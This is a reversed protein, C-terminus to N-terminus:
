TECTGAATVPNRAWLTRAWLEHWLRPVDVVDAADYVGITCLLPVTAFICVGRADKDETTHRRGRASALLAVWATRYWKDGEATAGEGVGRTGEGGPTLGSTNELM